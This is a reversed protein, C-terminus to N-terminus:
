AFDLHLCAAVIRRVTIEGSALLRQWVVVPDAGESVSGLGFRVVLVGAGEGFARLGLRV